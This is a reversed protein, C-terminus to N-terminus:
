DLLAEINELISEIEVDKEEIEQKLKEIEEKLRKIEEECEIDSNAEVRKKLEMNEKELLEYNRKLEEIKDKLRKLVDM